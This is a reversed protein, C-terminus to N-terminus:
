PDTEGSTGDPAAPLWREILRSIVVAVDPDSGILWELLRRRDDESGGYGISMTVAGEFEGVAILTFAPPAQMWWAALEDRELIDDVVTAVPGDIDAGGRVGTGTYHAGPIALFRAARLRREGLENELQVVIRLATEADDSELAVRVAGALKLADPM